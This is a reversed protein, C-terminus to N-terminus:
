RALTGLDLTVPFPGALTVTSDRAIERYTGDVLEHLHGVPEDDVFEIRLYVPVGAQAYLQPKVARDTFANGPSVIEVVLRVASADAVLAAMDPEEVVALDPILLRDQGVRVNVAELARMGRPAAANLAAWLRSSLWQHRHSGTPSVLLSGDLLEVHRDVPLALVDAETWPGDHAFPDVHEQEPAAM